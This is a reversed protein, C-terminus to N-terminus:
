KGPSPELKVKTLVQVQADPDDFTTPRPDSVPSLCLRATQNGDFAYIGHLHPLPGRLGTVNQFELTIEKPNAAENLVIRYVKGGVYEWRDGTVRIANPTDRGNLSLNWEGRFRELDNRPEPERVVFYWVAFGAIAPLLVIAALLLFSRHKQGEGRNRPSPPPAEGGPSPDAEPSTVGEGRV